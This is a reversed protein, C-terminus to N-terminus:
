RVGPLELRATQQLRRLLSQVVGRVGQTCRLLTTRGALIADRLPVGAPEVRTRRYARAPTSRARRARRADLAPGCQRCRMRRAPGCRVRAPADVRLTTGRVSRSRHVRRVSTRVVSANCQGAATSMRTATALCTAMSTCRIRMRDSGRQVVRSAIGVARPSTRFATTSTCCPPDM